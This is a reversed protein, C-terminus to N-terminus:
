AAGEGAKKAEDLPIATVLEIVFRLRDAGAEGRGEMTLETLTVGPREEVVHRLMLLMPLFGLNRNGADLTIEIPTRTLSLGAEVAAQTAEGMHYQMSFGSLRATESLTSLWGAMDPFNTFLTGVAERYRRNLVDADAASWQRRLRDLDSELNAVTILGERNSQIMPARLFLTVYIVGIPILLGAALAIKSLLRRRIWFRVDDAGISGIM